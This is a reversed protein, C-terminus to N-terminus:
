NEAQKAAATAAPTTAASEYVWDSRSDNPTLAAYIEHIILPNEGRWVEYSRVFYYGDKVFDRVHSPRLFSGRKRSIRLAPAAGKQVQTGGGGRPIQVCVYM